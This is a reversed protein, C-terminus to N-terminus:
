KNIIEIAKKRILSLDFIVADEPCTDGEEFEDIEYYGAPNNEVIHIIDKLVQTIEAKHQELESVYNEIQARRTKHWPKNTETYYLEKAENM